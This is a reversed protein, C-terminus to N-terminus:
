LDCSSKGGSLDWLGYNGNYTYWGPTSYGIIFLINGLALTGLIGGALGKMDIVHTCTKKEDKITIKTTM